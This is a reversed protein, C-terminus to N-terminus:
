EITLKTDTPCKIYAASGNQIVFEDGCKGCILEVAEKSLKVHMDKDRCACVIIKYGDDESYPTREYVFHHEDLETISFIGDCFLKEESRISGIKRYFSLLAEDMNNWPFPMRCFPDRYGEVGVEDGYFVCPVGPLGAIIAYALTLLKTATERREKTMRLTSLELNTKDGCEEGGLITLIRETDHTGLFNMLNDSTCKPYRRYLGESNKRMLEFNGNKVYEIVASRLPYNMVSDLEDGYLYGRRDGYSVKDSADEWVEGIIVGDESSKKVASRFERLFNEDLEDAVDLRWGSVGKKMWKEVVSDCIFSRFDTNKGNVRPLIKVGWWCEYDDPFDRFMYWDYYPSSKSQYAGLSDYSGDKNFYISDAGTHNFVGDLIVDIGREKAKECLEALADDGGFMEDVSLYDATDYKHNSYADFVPSLYITKTGLSSIYDLKEAIGYLDGGFFVNNSVEAGPYEGYQPIGNDWDEDLVACDKVGCRGSRKFRDVFIHYVIGETFAKSTKYESKYVLLQREGEGNELPTLRKVGEGGLMIESEATKILYHYYFLGCEGDWRQTLSSFDFTLAFSGDESKEMPFSMRVENQSNWADKHIVISAETIECDCKEFELTFLVRSAEAFAGFPSCDRMNVLDLKLENAIIAESM